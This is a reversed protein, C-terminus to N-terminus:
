PSICSNLLLIASFTLASLFCRNVLCPDLSKPAPLSAWRVQPPGREQFVRQQVSLGHFIIVTFRKAIIIGFSQWNYILADILVSESFILTCRPAELSRWEETDSTAKSSGIRAYHGRSFWHGRNILSPWLGSHGRPLGVVVLSHKKTKRRSIIPVLINKKKVKKIKTVFPQTIYARTEYACYFDRKTTSHTFLVLVKVLTVPLRSNQERPLGFRHVPPRNRWISRRRFPKSKEWTDM